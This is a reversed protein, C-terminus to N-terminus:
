NDILPRRASYEAMQLPRPVSSLLSAAAQDVTPAYWPCGRCDDRECGHCGDDAQAAESRARTVAALEAVTPLYQEHTIWDAAAARALEYPLQMLLRIYLEATDEGIEADPYAEILLALLAIAESAKM